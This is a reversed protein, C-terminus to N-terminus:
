VKYTVMVRISQGNSLTLIVNYNNGPIMGSLPNFAVIVNNNGPNLSIPAITNSTYTTGELTATVINVNGSSYLVFSAVGNPRMEGIGIQYVNVFPQSPVTPSPQGYGGIQGQPYPIVGGTLRRVIEDVSVYVLIWGIFSIVPIIEIIGGIKLLDSNYFKGINYLAIGILLFAIFVLIDGIVGIAGGVIIFLILGRLNFPSALGFILGLVAILAGIFEIIIGVPLIRLGTFGLGVDKGGNSFTQLAQRLKPIGLVFLLILSVIAAIGAVSKVIGIDVLLSIVIFWLAADKLQQLAQVDTNSM